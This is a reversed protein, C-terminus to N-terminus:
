NMLGPSIKARAPYKRSEARECFGKRRRMLVTSSLSVSLSEGDCERERVGVIDLDAVAVSVGTKCGGPDLVIGELFTTSAMMGESTLGVVAVGSDMKGTVASEVTALGVVGVTESDVVPEVKSTVALEVMAVAVVVAEPDVIPGPVPSSASAAALDGAAGLPLDGKSVPVVVVRTALTPDAALITGSAIASALTTPGLLGATFIRNFNFGCGAFHVFGSAVSGRRLERLRLCGSGAAAGGVRGVEFRAFDTEKSEM